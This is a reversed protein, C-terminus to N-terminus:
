LNRKINKQSFPNEKMIQNTTEYLKLSVKDAERLVEEIFVSMESNQTENLESVLMRIIQTNIQIPVTIIENM